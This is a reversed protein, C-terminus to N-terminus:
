SALECGDKVATMSGSVTSTSVTEFWSLKILFAVPCNTITVCGICAFCKNNLPFPDLMMTPKYSVCRSSNLLM